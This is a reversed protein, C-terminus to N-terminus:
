VCIGIDVFLFKLNKKITEKFNLVCVGNFFNMFQFLHLHTHFFLLNIIWFLFLVCNYLFYVFLTNQEKFFLICTFHQDLMEFRDRDLMKNKERLENNKYSISICGKQNLFFSRMFLIQICNWLYLFRTLGLLVTTFYSQTPSCSERRQM